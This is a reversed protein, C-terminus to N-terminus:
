KKCLVMTWPFPKRVELIKFYKRLLEVFEKSSWNQVHEIDNGFRTLNKGRLFNMIRFYPENPVSFVCYNRSVRRIEQIAREPEELHELVETAIALDFSDNKFSLEYVSGACLNFNRNKDRALKLASKSIDVGTIDSFDLCNIIFGEGCGIDIIRNINELPTVTAKLNEIFNSIVMGMLPNKSNYKKYNGSQFNENIPIEAQDM